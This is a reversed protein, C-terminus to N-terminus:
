VPGPTFYEDVIRAFPRPGYGLERRAKGSDYFQFCYRADYASRGGARLLGAAAGAVLAPVPVRVQRARARAAVVEAIRRFTVNEGGLIYREGARGRAAAGLIGAVVDEVHVACIGGPFSFDLRRRARGLVEGGRFGGRWRGFVFGPNVVVVEPGAAGHRLAEEESMRKSRHYSFRSGGLDGGLNFAFSEDAPRRADGPIGVAAASSVHVLRGVGSERCALAVHRTGEVNVRMQGAPDAAGGRLQAACHIVLEQGRAARGLSERDGVDGVAERVRLGGLPAPDSAARRFATVEHGEAELRRCLHSGLFGTAGTVLVKM